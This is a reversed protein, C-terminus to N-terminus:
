YNNENRIVIICYILDMAFYFNKIPLLKDPFFHDLKVLHLLFKNFYIFFINHSNTDIYSNEPHIVFHSVNNECIVKYIQGLPIMYSVYHLSSM